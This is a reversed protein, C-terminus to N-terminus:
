NNFTFIETLCISLFYFNAKSIAIIYINLELFVKRYQLTLNTLKRLIILLLDICIIESSPPTTPSDRCILTNQDLLLCLCSPFYGRTPGLVAQNRTIM